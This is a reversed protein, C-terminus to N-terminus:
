RWNPGNGVIRGRGPLSMAPPGVESSSASDCARSILPAMVPSGVLRVRSRSAFAATGPVATRAFVPTVASLTRSTRATASPAITPVASLAPPTVQFGTSGARAACNMVAALRALSLATLTYHGLACQEEEDAVQVTGAPAEPLEHVGRLDVLGGHEHQAPVDCALGDLRDDAPRVSQPAAGEYSVAVLQALARLQGLEFPEDGVVAVVRITGLRAFQLGHLRLAREVVQEQPEHALPERLPQVDSVGPQPRFADREVHHEAVVVRRLKGVHQVLRRPADVGLALHNPQVVLM